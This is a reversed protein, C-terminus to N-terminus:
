IDNALITQKRNRESEWRRISDHLTTRKFFRSEYSKRISSTLEYTRLKRKDSKSMDRGTVQKFVTPLIHAMIAIIDKGRCLQINGVSHQARLESVQNLVEEGTIWSKRKVLRKAFCDQDIKFTKSTESDFFIFDTIRIDKFKLRYKKIHNLLRFYGFESGLRLAVDTLAKALEPMYNIYRTPLDERLANELAPSSLLILEADPYDEDYLLNELQLENSRTILCYDGDVIGVRNREQRETAIKIADIINDKGDHPLLHCNKSKFKEWLVRDKPGEVLVHTKEKPGHVFKTEGYLSNANAATM